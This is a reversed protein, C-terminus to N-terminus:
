RLAEDILFVMDGIAGSFTVDLANRATRYGGMNPRSEMKQIVRQTTRSQNRNDILEVRFGTLANWKGEPMVGWSFEGGVSGIGVSVNAGFAAHHASIAIKMTVTNPAADEWYSDSGLVKIEASPYARKITSTIEDLFQQSECEVKSKKTFARADFFVLNIQQGKLFGGRPAIPAQSPCWTYLKQAQIFSSSCAIVFVLLLKRIPM